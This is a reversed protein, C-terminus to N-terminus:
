SGSAPEKGLAIIQTLWASHIDWYALPEDRFRSRLFQQLRGEVYSIFFSALAASQGLQPHEGRLGSAQLMQRLETELRSWFQAIRAQLRDKEGVIAEGMLVRTIGANRAAFGLLVYLISITQDSVSQEQQKIKVVLEFISAEAFEILGEYMKAKSAFHRYLAAESVGASKALRATTIREGPSQELAVALSQLIQQKREGAM